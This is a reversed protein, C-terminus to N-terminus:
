NDAIEEFFRVMAAVEEPKLRVAYHVPPLIMYIYSGPYPGVTVSLRGRVRVASGSPSRTPTWEVRFEELDVATRLRDFAGGDRLGAAMLGGHDEGSGRVELESSTAVFGTVRHEITFPEIESAANPLSDRVLCVRLHYVRALLRRKVHYSLELRGGVLAAASGGAEATLVIAGATGEVRRLGHAEFM